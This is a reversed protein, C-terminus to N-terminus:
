AQVGSVWVQSFSPGLQISSGSLLKPGLVCAWIEFQLASGFGGFGFGGAMFIGFRRFGLIGFVM